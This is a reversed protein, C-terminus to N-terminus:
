AFELEDCPYDDDDDRMDDLVDDLNDMERQFDISKNIIHPHMGDVIEQMFSRAQSAKPFFRGGHSGSMSNLSKFQDLLRKGGRWNIWNSSTKLPINCKRECYIFYWGGSTKFCTANGKGYTRDLYDQDHGWNRYNRDKIPWGLVRWASMGQRFNKIKKKFRKSVKTNPFTKISSM